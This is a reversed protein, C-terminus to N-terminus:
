VPVPERGAKRMPQLSGRSLSRWLWELPGYHFRDLWPKSWALMLAWMSIVPLWLAAREVLGFLGLGYGYFLSTMVLSTALYNTFAMRGAAAVRDRLAPAAGSGIWLILLAAIAIAVPIDFPASIAVLSAFLLPTDFDTTVIRSALLVLPPLGLALGWIAWRRYSARPWDGTVFGSKYMAMGILMLAVTELGYGFLSTFPMWTMKGLRYDVIEAYGSRYIALESAIKGSNAGVELELARRAEIAGAAAEPSLGPSGAMSAVWSVLGYFIVSLGILVVAWGILARPSQKRFVYIIMGCMAYLALIDGFWLFWFHLCGVALLVIMRTYHASAGGRDSARAREIVLLTSAGFLMSFLTRMKGDFLVFNAAWAALNIGTDGGYAAPNSYAPFPMAFAVINLVLIGMVAAGRVVDLTVFRQGAPSTADTM